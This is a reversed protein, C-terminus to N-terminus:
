MAHFYDQVSKVLMDRGSENRSMAVSVIKVLMNRDCPRQHKRCVAIAHTTYERVTPEEIHNQEIIDGLEEGLQYITPGKSEKRERTRKEYDMSVDKASQQCALLVDNDFNSVSVTRSENGHKTNFLYQVYENVKDSDCKKVSYETRDQPLFHRKVRARFADIGIIKNSADVYAHYHPNGHPLVHHVLVHSKYSEMFKKALEDNVGDIRLRFM